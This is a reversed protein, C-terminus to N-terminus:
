TQQSLNLLKGTGSELLTVYAKLCRFSFRKVQFYQTTCLLVIDERIKKGANRGTDAGTTRRNHLHMIVIEGHYQPSQEPSYQCYKEKRLHNGAKQWMATNFCSQKPLYQLMNMIDTYFYIM